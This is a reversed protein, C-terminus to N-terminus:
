KLNRFLYRIRLFYLKSSESNKFYLKLIQRYTYGIAVMVAAGIQCLGVGHGWGAGRFIFNEEKKDIVFASSYLHTPSFAKRIVLEKGIEMTKRTGIIKIRCLRGSTGRELPIIETITGFDIGLKEKVLASLEGTTYNVQWRFFHRTELDYDNLVEGLIKADSTNCFTAPSSLIWARAAKEESLNGTELPM